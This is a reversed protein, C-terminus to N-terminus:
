PKYFQIIETLFKAPEELMPFHSSQEFYVLRGNPFYVDIGTMNTKEHTPDKTGWLLLSPITVKDYQQEKNFAMQFASAMCFGSGCKAAKNTIETYASCDKENLAVRKYWHKIFTYKLSWMLFQGIYPTRIMGKIDIRESWKRQQEWTPTQMLVLAEIKLQYQTACQWAVYGSVCSYCLACHEIKLNEILGMTIAVGDNVSFSYNDTKLTSFGFGPFEFFVVTYNLALSDAVNLYHEITHPPDPVFILTKAGNGKIIYRIRYDQHEWYQSQDSICASDRKKKSAALIIKDIKHEYNPM